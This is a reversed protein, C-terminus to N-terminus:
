YRDLYVKKTFKVVVATEYSGPFKDREKHWNFARIAEAKSKYWYPPRGHEKRPYFAFPKTKGDFDILKRGIIYGRYCAKPTDPQGYICRKVM